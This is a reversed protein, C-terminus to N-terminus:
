STLLGLWFSPSPPLSIVHFAQFTAGGPKMFIDAARVLFITIFPTPPPPPSPVPFAAWRTEHLHRCGQCFSPSSCSSTPSQPPPPYCPFGNGGPKMFIDAVRASLHPHVPPPPFGNGGPKMFIDAVRASLHHRVRPPPSAPIIPFAAGM